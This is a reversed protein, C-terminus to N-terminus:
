HRVVEFLLRALLAVPTGVILAALPFALAILLL